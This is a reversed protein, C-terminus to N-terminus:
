PSRGTSAPEAHGRAASASFRHFALNLGPNLPECLRDPTYELRGSGM